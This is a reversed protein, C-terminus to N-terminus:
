CQRAAWRAYRLPRDTMVADVRATRAATWASRRNLTWTYTTLGAERWRRVRRRTVLDQQPLVVTGLSQALDISPRRNAFVLGTRVHAAMGRVLELNSPDFSQVTTARVMRQSRIVDLFAQVHTASVDSGKLELVLRVGHRKAVTVLSSLPPVKAGGGADLQRLQALTMEEVYGAGDTTRDVTADHLMVPVQDATFRVDGELIGAGARIAQRYAPLTEEFTDATIGRHSILVPACSRTAADAVGTGTLSLASVVTAVAAPAVTLRVGRRV